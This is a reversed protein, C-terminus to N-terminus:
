VHARGIEEASAEAGPLSNEILAAWGAAREGWQAHVTERENEVNRQAVWGAVLAFVLLVAVVTLYIRLYLNKMM